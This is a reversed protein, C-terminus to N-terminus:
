WRDKARLREVLQEDPTVYVTEYRDYIVMGPKAHAPKKVNRVPCFDVAVSSSQRARSHYAALIAAQMVTSPPIEKGMASVITHTGHVDKVHLWLDTKESNRLTLQDNQRNNRGVYIDFGDDSIFHLPPLARPPKKKGTRSARLYGAQELEDKIEGLERDSEARTLEDAVSELYVIEAASEEILQTLKEQATNAKRYETFYRQANQSPSLEPKLPIRVQKGEPDYYNVVDVFAAGREVAYLNAKLLEGFIRLQEKDACRVLEGRQKEVKRSTREIHTNIYKGIEYTRRRVADERQRERYFSDCLQSFSDEQRCTCKGDYQRIPLYSFDTPRGDTDVVLTPAGKEIYRKWDGIASVLVSQEALFAIERAVLPSVGEVSASINKALGDGAVDVQAAIEAATSQRPDLKNQSAPAEYRAGPLILRGNKEPDSRRLADLVRGDCLLIVNSQRGMIEVVICLEIEDGMENYSSFDLCLVRDLGQQRVNELRASSFYKRMLMCFMPPTAPNEYTEQTFHIRPGVSSVTILLKGSFGRKSLTLLIDDRTPQYIKDIRSGVAQQLESAIHSLFVGDFAM